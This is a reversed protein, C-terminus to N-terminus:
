SEGDLLTAVGGLPILDNGQYSVKLEWFAEGVWSASTAPLVLRVKRLTADLVEVQMSIVGSRNSLPVIRATVVAPAALTAPGGYPTMDFLTISPVRFRSGAYVKINFSGPIM